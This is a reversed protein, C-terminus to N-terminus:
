VEKYVAHHVNSYEDAQEVYCWVIAQPVIQLLKIFHDNQDEKVVEEAVGLKKRIM